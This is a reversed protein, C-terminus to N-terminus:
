IHSTLSKQYIGNPFSLIFTLGKSIGSVQKLKFYGYLLYYYLYNISCQPEVASIVSSPLKQGQHFTFLQLQAKM